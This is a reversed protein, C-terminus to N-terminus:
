FNGPTFAPRQTSEDPELFKKVENYYNDNYLRQGIKCRGKSGVVQAWNMRLPEGHKKQGISIFFACVLGETKRSLFLNHKVIATGQPADIQLTLEAKPCASMKESGNFYGREFSKVTFEYEGEPLLVFENEAEIVSDWDLTDNRNTNYNENM